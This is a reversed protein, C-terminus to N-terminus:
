ITKDQKKITFRYKDKGQEMCSFVEDALGPEVIELSSDIPIDCKLLQRAISNVYQIHGHTDIGIIGIVAQELITEPKIAM